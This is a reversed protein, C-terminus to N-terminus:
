KVKTLNTKVWNGRQWGVVQRCRDCLGNVLGELSKDTSYTTIGGCM